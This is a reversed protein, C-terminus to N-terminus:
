VVEGGGVLVPVDLDVCGAESSDSDVVEDEDEDGPRLAGEEGGFLMPAMTPPAIPPAARIQKTTRPMRSRRLYWRPRSCLGSGVGEMEPGKWKGLMCLGLLESGLM